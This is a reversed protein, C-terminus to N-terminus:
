AVGDVGGCDTLSATVEVDEDEAHEECVSIRQGDPLWTAWTVAPVDREECLCCWGHEGVRRLRQYFRGHDRSHYTKPAVGEHPGHHFEHRTIM